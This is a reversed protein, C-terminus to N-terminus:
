QGVGMAPEGFYELLWTSNETTVITRWPDIQTVESIVSTQFLGMVEAGNSCTRLVSLRNGVQPDLSMVGRIWYGLTQETPGKGAVKTVIVEQLPSPENSAINM